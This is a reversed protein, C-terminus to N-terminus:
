YREVLVGTMTYAAEGYPSATEVVQLRGQVWVPDWIVRQKKGGAMKVHIMQNPPPPPVHVCALVYPTLLFETVTDAADELPIMFGPVRVVVGDGLLKAIAPSTQGTQFDLERLTQWPVELPTQTQAHASPVVAPDRFVVDSMDTVPSGVLWNVGIGVLVIAVTRLLYTM